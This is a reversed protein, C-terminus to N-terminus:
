ETQMPPTANLLNSVATVIQAPAFPKMVLVSKPVGKSAWDGGSAGTMYVVPMEPTIERARRAVDWGTLIGPPLDVDTILARIETGMEELKANADAGSSALVVGYGGEALADQVVEQIVANDEVVLVLISTNVVL